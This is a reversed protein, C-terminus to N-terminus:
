SPGPCLLLAYLVMVHPIGVKCLSRMLSGYTPADSDRNFAIFITDTLTELSVLKFPILYCKITVNLHFFM